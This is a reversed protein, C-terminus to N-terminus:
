YSVTDSKDKGSLFTKIYDAYEYTYIKIMERVDNLNMQLRM